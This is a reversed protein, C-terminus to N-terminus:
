EFSLFSLKNEWMDKMKYKYKNFEDDSIHLSFDIFSLFEVEMKILEESNLQGLKSYDEDKFNEDEYYKHTIVMSTFLLNKVNDDTLIFDKALIKDIYMMTLVLLNENFEMKQVWYYLYDVLSYKDEKELLTSGSEENSSQSTSIDDENNKAFKKQDFLTPTVQNLSSNYDIIKNIVFLITEIFNNITMENRSIFIGARLSRM